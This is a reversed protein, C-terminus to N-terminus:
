RKTRLALAFSEPTQDCIDATWRQLEMEGDEPDIILCTPAGIVAFRKRFATNEVNSDDSGDIKVTVMNKMEDAVEPTCFIKKDVVKCLTCYPASVSVLLKKHEKRATERAAAYDSLWCSLEANTTPIQNFAHFGLLIAVGSSMASTFWKGTRWGWGPTKSADWLYFVSAAVALGSAVFLLHHASMINKLFHLCMVLMVFGFFKKIEVMWMGARPLANLSSSLTGILLLPMSLGIGFSFLLGFGLVKSGLTPVITLLLILGPSLCPSAVTGSAAGFLFTSLLSGGKKSSTGGQFTNPIYMDYLGLMSGALYALVGVISFVFLPKALMAGFMAGTSAAALGLLAFTSSLGLTYSGALCFNRGLTGGGQSQLVGATIPIMPYICPTLSLLLGLLMALLMRIWPSATTELLRSLMDTWSSSKQPAPTTPAAPSSQSAVAHTNPPTPSEPRLAHFAGITILLGALIYRLFSTPTTTM